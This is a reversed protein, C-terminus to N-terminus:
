WDDSYDSNVYEVLSQLYSNINEEATQIHGNLLKETKANRGWANDELM